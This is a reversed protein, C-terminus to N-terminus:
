GGVSGWRTATPTSSRFSSAGGSRMPRDTTRTSTASARTGCWTTRAAQAGQGDHGLGRAGLRHPLGAGRRREPRARAPVQPGRAADPASLLREHYWDVAQEVARVLRARRKRSEGEDKDSYRLTIGAWGALLEVAGVFDLHEVERVFTIVDGRVQCGWCRYLGLEQNVSFSPTKEATSRACASGGSGRGACSRTSPSSLSSTPPTGCRWSTRTSSAWRSQRYRAPYSVGGAVSWQPAASAHQPGHRGSEDGSRGGRRDLRQELAGRIALREIGAVGLGPRRQLPDHDVTLPVHQLVQVGVVVPRHAPKPSRPHRGTVTHVEPIRSATGCAISWATTPAAAPTPRLPQPPASRSRSTVGCRTGGPSSTSGSACWRCSRSWRASSETVKQSGTPSGSSSDSSLRQLAKPGPQIAASSSPPQGSATGRMAASPHARNAARAGASTTSSTSPAAPRRRGAPGHRAVCGASAGARRSSARCGRPPQRDCRAARSSRGLPRASRGRDRRPVQGQVPSPEGLRLLGGDLGEATGELAAADVGPRPPVRLDRQAQETCQHLEAPLLCEPVVVLESPPAVTRALSLPAQSRRRTSPSRHRKAPRGRGRRRGGRRRARPATAPAGPPGAPARHRRRCRRQSGLWRAPRPGGRRGRGPVPSARRRGAGGGAPRRPRRARGASRSSSRRLPPPPRRTCGRGPDRGLGRRPRARRRALRRPAPTRRRWRRGGGRWPRRRCRPARLRAPSRLRPDVVEARRRHRSSAVTAPATAAARRAPSRASADTMSTATGPGRGAPGPRRAGPCPRPRGTRRWAAAEFSPTRELFTCELEEAIGLDQDAPHHDEAGLGSSSRHAGPMAMRHQACGSRPPDAASVPSSPSSGSAPATLRRAAATSCAGPSVTSRRGSITAGPPSSWAPASAGGRSALWVTSGRSADRGGRRRRRHGCPRGRSPRARRSAGRARPSGRELADARVWDAAALARPADDDLLAIRGELLRQRQRQHWAM